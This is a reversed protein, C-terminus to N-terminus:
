RDVADKLRLAAIMMKSLMENVGKPSLKGLEKQESKTILGELEKRRLQNLRKFQLKSEKMVLKSEILAEYSTLKPAGLVFTMSKDANRQLEVNRSANGGCLSCTGVLVINGTKISGSFDAITVEQRCAGCWAASQLKQQDEQSIAHWIKAAPATFNPSM